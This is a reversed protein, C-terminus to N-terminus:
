HLITVVRREQWRRLEEPTPDEVSSSEESPVVSGGDEEEATAEGAQAPVALMRSVDLDGFQSQLRALLAQEQDQDQDAMKPQPSKGIGGLRAAQM